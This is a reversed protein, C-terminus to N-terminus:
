LAKLVIVTIDDHQDAGAAFADVDAIVRAIIESPPLSSCARVAALWRADGFEEGAHNMAELVGDTCVALLDGPQLTLEASPYVAHPVLGLALGRAAPIEVEGGHRLLVAGAHGASSHRLTRAAPDWQCCFLTAFRNRPTSDFVLRNLRSMLDGLGAVGGACLGRLSAQLGAMLLAAPVGKGCIDGIVATLHSAPTLFFDFYDGGISQAPRCHGACELGPVPPPRRPLLREQVERAIELERHIRERRAAEAAVERTLRSNELALATQTAVTELLRRDSRSYPEENRKPGLVLHGHADAGASLPIALEWGDGAGNSTIEVREVHLAASVRSCVRLKLEEADAISRVEDSLAALVQEAEVQERFFRRDVWARAKGAGRQVVIAALMSYAILQLQRAPRMGVSKFEQYVVWMVLLMVLATLVRVGKQALAYQLGQRLVVRVDLAKQVVIVYGLTAPFVFMLLMLVLILPGPLSNLDTGRIRTYVAAFFMPALSLNAGWWLLKLRRRADAAPEKAAKYPINAFFVAIGCLLLIFFVPSALLLIFFVPSAFRLARNVLDPTQGGAAEISEFIAVTLSFALLPLGVAWQTWRLIRVPSRPDPFYLGFLLMWLAWTTNAIFAYFVGSSRWPQDWELPINGVGTALHGFSIMLGLVLWAALDRPRVLVVFFGLALCVVRTLFDVFIAIIWDRWGSMPGAAPKLQIEASLTQGGRLYQVPLHQGAAASRLSAKFEGGHRLPRGAVTLVRDGPQLGAATAEDQLASIVTTHSPITFPLRPADRYFRIAGWTHAIEYSGALLLLLGALLRLYRM